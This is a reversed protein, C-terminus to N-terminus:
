RRPPKAGEIERSENGVRALCAQRETRRDIAVCRAAEDLVHGAAADSPATSPRQGASLPVVLQPVVPQKPALEGPPRAAEAAKVTPNSPVSAAAAPMVPPAAQACVPWPSTALLAASLFVYETRM